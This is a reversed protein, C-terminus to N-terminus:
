FTNKYSIGKLLLLIISNKSYRGKLETFPTLIQPAYFPRPYSLCKTYKM